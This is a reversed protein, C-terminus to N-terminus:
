IVGLLQLTTCFLCIVINHMTKLFGVCFDVFPSQGHHLHRLWFRSVLYHDAPPSARGVQRVYDFFGRGHLVPRQKVSGSMTVDNQIVRSRGRCSELQVRHYFGCQQRDLMRSNCSEVGILCIIFWVQVPTTKVGTGTDFGCRDWYPVPTAKFYMSGQCHVNVTNVPSVNLQRRRAVLGNDPVHGATLGGDIWTRSLFHDNHCCTDVMEMTHVASIRCLTDGTVAEWTM